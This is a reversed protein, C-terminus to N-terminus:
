NRSVERLSAIFSRELFHEFMGNWSIRVMQVLSGHDSNSYIGCDEFKVTSPRRGIYVGGGQMM